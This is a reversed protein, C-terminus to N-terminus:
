RKNLKQGNMEIYKYSLSSLYIVIVLTLLIVFNNIMSNGFNLYTKSEIVSTIQGGTIKQLIMATYTLFFLITAHIMYISYSLKGALQFPKIKLLSSIVGSEFSFFLVTLMFLLAAVILQNEFNSKVVYVILLILCLEVCSALSKNIIICSLKKYALYTCAGGFFCLLGRLVPLVLIDSKFFILLFASVSVILWCIKKNIGFTVITIFLLIYLYFEISISWSPYNFSFHSTFSTWSQLLLLNPIIEHVAFNNTFPAESFVIGGYHTALIKVFQLMILVLFIFFHLPYLRFFRAKMFDYFNLHQRFGYSHTLVFGSLVFFFDVLISSGKFFNLETISDVLDMHFIVVSLACLGRFADLSEFRQKM